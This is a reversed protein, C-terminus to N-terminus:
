RPESSKRILANKRQRYEEGQLEREVGERVLRLRARDEANTTEEEMAQAVEILNQYHYSVGRDPDKWIDKWLFFDPDTGLRPEAILRELLKRTEYFIALDLFDFIPGNGIEPRYETVYDMFARGSVSGLLLFQVGIQLEDYQSVMNILTYWNEITPEQQVPQADRVNTEETEPPLGGQSPQRKKKMSM